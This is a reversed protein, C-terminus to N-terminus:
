QLKMYAVIITKMLSNWVDSKSYKQDAGGLPDQVIFDGGEEGSIVVYHNGDYQYIRNKIYKTQIEAIILSNNLLLTSIDLISEVPVISYSVGYLKLTQTLNDFNTAGRPYPQGIINRMMEVSVNIKTSWQVAMAVCAPGCNGLGTGIQTKYWNPNAFCSCIFILGYLGIAKKRKSSM